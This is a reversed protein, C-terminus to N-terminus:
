VSVETTREGLQAIVGPTLRIKFSRHYDHRRLSYIFLRYILGELDDGDRGERSKHGRAAVDTRERM